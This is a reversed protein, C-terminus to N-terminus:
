GPDPLWNGHAGYPVRRPLRVTAVPASEFARADIIVCSSENGHEDHVVSLVWGDDEAAGPSRPAFVPEGGHVGAGLDHRQRKGTQLDYRYLYRDYNLTAQAPVLGMTYGYRAELGMRRDDVRPFDSPADDLQEETVTGKATDITWKWLRASDDEGEVIDHMGGVMAKPARCVHLIIRAGAEYANLPHFVYCPDIEYWRVDANTGHRPMVGLRAGADPDFGLPEKGAAIRNMDFVIPLDMFIVHNRTVNWDHMMVPRPIEIPEVQVLHGQADIRYYALYPQEMFSYGFALMEGSEPCVRPHATFARQLKGDFDVCGVTNLEGDIEWPLHAEELTLIRGAHRVVNTNAPSAAPDALATMLDLDQEYYPTRVFRNRYSAKGDRLEVGHVMGSGFFWHDSRGSRPNMGNRLYLGNLERPIEGRVDLDAVCLEDHVPAWNGRLHWPLEQKQEAM